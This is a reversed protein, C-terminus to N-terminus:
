APPAMRYERGRIAVLVTPVLFLTIPTSLALGGIVALALPRQMEAGAGLGLALPLLGFLTCLTTMLIPRLRVRGAARVAQELTEGGYRMRHRTFDLLIIGNKVILGVLLIMGMLSSVNLQTGTILLLLIAGVFSLPAALLIVLPEVFSEFQVLMVAVVSLAALALVLLMSRFAEQQGAYQGGLAVRIGPPPPDAALVRQVDGMVAGLSRDEVGGTVVVVQRQNERLLEAHSSAEHFRAVASLPTPTASGSGFVPIAGLRQPDFRVADPARVRVDVTRDGPRLQGAATGLMAAQVQAAVQEPTLGIRAAAGQDVDLVLEPAPDAVGNYLDVMGEISELKPAIREAYAEMQPLRDGFVKIEVPEASGSLDNILDTLIQVFEIQLRPVRENIRTRLEPIIEFVSRSRQGRPALRVVVDGTNQETAFLGM